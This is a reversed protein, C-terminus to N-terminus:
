YLVKDAKASWEKFSALSEDRLCPKMAITRQDPALPIQQYIFDDDFGISELDTATAIKNM